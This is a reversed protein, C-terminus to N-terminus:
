TKREKKREKKREDYSNTVNIKKHNGRKFRSISVAHFAIFSTSYINLLMVNLQLVVFSHHFYEYEYASVGEHSRSIKRRRSSSCTRNDSRGDHDAHFYCSCFTLGQCLGHTFAFDAPIVSDITFTCCLCFENNTSTEM